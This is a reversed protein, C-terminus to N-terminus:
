DLRIAFPTSEYAGLGEGIANVARIMRGNRDLRSDAISILRTNPRATPSALRLRRAIEDESLGPSLVCASIFAAATSRSIGAYCHVILPKSRDWRELFRILSEIHEQNPAIMGDMEEAIDDMELWLHADLKVRHEFLGTRERAILEEDRVLTVLHRAGSQSITEQLRSLPCVIITM